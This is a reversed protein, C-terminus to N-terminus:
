CSVWLDRLGRLTLGQTVNARLRTSAEGEAEDAPSPRLPRLGRDHVARAEVRRPDRWGPVSEPRLGRSPADAMNSQSPIREWFALAKMDIELHCIDEVIKSAEVSSSTGKVISHKGPENDVFGLFARGDLVESFLILSVLVGILEIAIIPNKATRMLIELSDASIAMAFWWSQKVYPTWSYVVSPRLM